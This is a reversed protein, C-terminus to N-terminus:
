IWMRDHCGFHPICRFRGIVRFVAMTHCSGKDALLVRVLATSPGAEPRSGLWAPGLYAPGLWALTGAEHHSQGLEPIQFAPALGDPRPKSTKKDDFNLVNFSSSYLTEWM